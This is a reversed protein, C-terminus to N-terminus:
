AGAVLVPDAAVADPSRSGAGRRAPLLSEYAQETLENM